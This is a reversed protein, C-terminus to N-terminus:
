GGLGITAAGVAGSFVLRSIVAGTSTANGFATTLNADNFFVTSDFKNPLDSAKIYGCKILESIQDNTALNNFADLKASSMSSIANRIKQAKDKGLLTVLNGGSLINTAEGQSTVRVPKTTAKVSGMASSTNGGSDRTSTGVTPILIGGRGVVNLYHIPNGLNNSTDSGWASAIIAGDVSPSMAALDAGMGTQLGTLFTSNPHFKVGLDTNPAVKYYNLADPIAFQDYATTNDGNAGPILDAQGGRGGVMFDQGLPAGGSLDIVFFPVMSSGVAASESCLIEAAEAKQSILGLLSPAMVYASTGILGLSLFDRRTVPKKHACRLINEIRKQEELIMVSGHCDIFELLM